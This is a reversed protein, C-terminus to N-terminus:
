RARHVRQLAVRMHVVNAINPHRRGEFKAGIFVSRAFATILRHDASEFLLIQHHAEGAVSQDERRRQDGTLVFYGSHGLRDMRYQLAQRLLVLKDLSM